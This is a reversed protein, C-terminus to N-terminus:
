LKTELQTSINCKWDLLVEFRSPSFIPNRSSPYHYTLESRAPAEYCTNKIIGAHQRQQIDMIAWFIIRHEM